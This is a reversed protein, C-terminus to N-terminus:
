PAPPMQALRERVVSATVRELRESATGADHVAALIQRLLEEVTESPQGLQQHRSCWPTGGVRHKGLRWCRDAHCNHLHYLSVVSGLLTLVTLAPTFGSWLQYTWPTQPGPYPHVGLAFLVGWLHCIVAYALAATVVGLGAIIRVALIICALCLPLM